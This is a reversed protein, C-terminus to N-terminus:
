ESDRLLKFFSIMAYHDSSPNKDAWMRLAKLNGRYLIHDIRFYFRDVHFTIDGGLGADRYADRFDGNQIHRLAYCGPIDNFDGCVVVTGDLKDIYDRLIRAQEARARFAANLKAILTSRYTKMDAHADGETLDKYLTRDDATLGLSQLHVNILHITDGPVAIDYHALDYNWIDPHNVKQVVFPYRSMIGMGRANLYRHPYLKEAREIQEQSIKKAGITLMPQGEQCVFIDPNQELVFELTSNGGRTECKGESFDDLNGMNYTMLKVFPRYDREITEVSPRFFNLPCFTLFPGICGLMSALMIVTAARSIWADVLLVVTAVILVVPFLMAAIAPICSKSPDFCGGYASFLLGAGVVISVIVAAIRVPALILNNAPFFKM